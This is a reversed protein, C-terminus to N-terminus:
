RATLIIQWGGLKDERESLDTVSYAIQMGAPDIANDQLEACLDKLMEAKTYAINPPEGRITRSLVIPIDSVTGGERGDGASAGQNAITANQSDVPM